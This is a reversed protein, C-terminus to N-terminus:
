GTGHQAASGAFQGNAWFTEALGTIGGDYGHHTHPVAAIGCGTTGQPNSM